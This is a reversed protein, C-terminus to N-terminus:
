LRLLRQCCLDPRKQRGHCRARIRNRTRSIKQRNAARNTNCRWCDDIPNGTLCGGQTKGLLERRFNCIKNLSSSPPLWQQNFRHQKKTQHSLSSFPAGNVATTVQETQKSHLRLLNDLSTRRPYGRSPTHRFRSEGPRLRLLRQCCLDPRKQRGHCRARIRNRTRSIKQRNAARNTNCRWCDDIPNGTLCGGQTKGLLERRSLSVNIKEQLEHVVAEPYSHQHPLTLNSISKTAKIQTSFSSLLCILLICSM